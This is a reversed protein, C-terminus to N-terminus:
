TILCAAIVILTVLISLIRFMQITEADKEAKLRAKKIEDYLDSTVLKFTESSHQNERELDRALATMKAGYVDESYGFQAIEDTRPTKM